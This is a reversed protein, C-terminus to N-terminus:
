PRGAIDIISSVFHPLSVAVLALGIGRGILTTKPSALFEGIGKARSAALGAVGVIVIPILAGAAPALLLLPAHKAISKVNRSMPPLARSYRGAIAALLAGHGLVVASFALVALWGPGVIDFDPNDARLPEIRSGGLVLLLAGFAVGGWHGRPLWRRVIVYLAGTVLGGFIGFFVIFGITGDVTIRGVIEEAETIRGQAADSSTAAMLRMALRGGGGIMVVGSGVGAAVAVTIYWIYRRLYEIPAPPWHSERHWPPQLELSGWRWVAVLGAVILGALIAM